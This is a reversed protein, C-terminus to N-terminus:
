QHAGQDLYYGQGREGRGFFYSAVAGAWSGSAVFPAGQNAGFQVQLLVKALPVPDASSSEVSSDEVSAPAEAPAGSEGGAGPEAKVAAAAPKPRAEAKPELVPLVGHWQSLLKRRQFDSLVGLQASLQAAIDAFLSSDVDRALEVLEHVRELAVRSEVANLARELAAVVPQLDREVAGVAAEVGRGLVHQVAGQQAG